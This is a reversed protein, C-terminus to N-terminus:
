EQQRDVGAALLALMQESIGATWGGDVAIVQASIFSSEDSLLFHYLGPLDEVKCLRGLPAAVASLRITPEDGTLMDTRVVSPNVVNVRIRRPGLEVAAARSLQVVAAKSASYQSLGPVAIRSALSATNIISGGARMHRPGHKLGYYTGYLNVALARDLIQSDSAELAGSGPGVGANNVIGHLEGGLTDAATTLARAVEAESRVDCLLCRAAIARLDAPCEAIDAIVVRAGASALRRAVAAGIGRAAGTIFIAKGDLSFM